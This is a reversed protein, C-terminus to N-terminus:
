RPTPIDRLTLYAAAALYAAVGIGLLTGDYRLAERWAGAADAHVVLLQPEFATLFSLYSLWHGHEWMRAVLKVVLSVAFLGAAWCVTRWRDRGGASFLATLGGLCFTMCALNIAGPLFSAVAVKEPLAVTRTGIWIGLWVCSALAASGVAMVVASPLMVSGRRIPLSLILDLTGRGVEGSVVDSGRGVAWGICVLMTVVHVFLVSLRGRTSALEDLPLGAMKDVFSPLMKLFAAVMRTDFLSMLWVFVWAFLALLVGSVWLQTRGDRIAKNWVARNM